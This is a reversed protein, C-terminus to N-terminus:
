STIKDEDSNLKRDLFKKFKILLVYVFEGIFFLPFCVGLFIGLRLVSSIIDLVNNSVSAMIYSLKTSEKLTIYVTVYDVSEKISSSSNRLRYLELEIDTLSNEISNIDSVSLDNSNLLEKYRLVKEEYIKIRDEVDVYNDTVDRTYVSKNLVKGLGSLNSIFDNYNESEIKVTLYSYKYANYEDDVIRESEVVGNNEEVYDKVTDLTKSCDKVEISWSNTTSKLNSGSSGINSSISESVSDFDVNFADGYNSNTYTKNSSLFGDKLALALIFLGVVIFLKSNLFKKM